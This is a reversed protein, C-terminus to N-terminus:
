KTALRHQIEGLVEAAAEAVGPTPDSALSTLLTQTEASPYNLLTGIATIRTQPQSAFKSQGVAATQLSTEAAPNRVEAIQMAIASRGEENQEINLREILSDVAPATGIQRLAQASARIMGDTAPTTTDTVVLILVPVAEETSIYAVTRELRDRLEEDTSADYIDVMSQISEPDALRAFIEQSMRIVGADASSQLFDLVVPISEANDVTSAVRVAEERLDGPPLSEIIRALDQLAAPTGLRALHEVRGLVSMEKGNELSNPYLEPQISDLSPLKKEPRIAHASEDRLVNSDTQEDSQQSRLILFVSLAAVLVLGVAIFQSLPSKFRVEM